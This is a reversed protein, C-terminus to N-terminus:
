VQSPRVPSISGSSESSAALKACLGVNDDTEARYVTPLLGALFALLAVVLRLTPSNSTTLIVVNRSVVYWRFSSSRSRFVGCCREVSLFEHFYLCNRSQDLCEAVADERRDGGSILGFIKAVPPLPYHYGPM